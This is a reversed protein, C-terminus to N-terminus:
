RDDCLTIGFQCDSALSSVLLPPYNLGRSGVRGGARWALMCGFILFQLRAASVSPRPLASPRALAWAFSFATQYFGLGTALGALAPFDTTAMPKAGGGAGLDASALACAAGPLEGFDSLVEQRAAEVTILM